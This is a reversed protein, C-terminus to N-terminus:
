SLSPGRLLVADFTICVPNGQASVHGRHVQGAMDVSILELWAKGNEVAGGTVLVETLGARLM